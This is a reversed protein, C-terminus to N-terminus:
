GNGAEASGLSSFGSVDSSLAGSRSLSCTKSYRGNMKRQLQMRPDQRHLIHQRRGVKM